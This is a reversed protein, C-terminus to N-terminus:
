LFPNDQRTESAAFTRQEEKPQEAAEMARRREEMKQTILGWNELLAKAKDEGVNAVFRTGKDVWEYERAIILLDDDHVGAERLRRMVEDTAPTKSGKRPEPFEQQKPPPKPKAAAPQQQKQPPPPPHEEEGPSPLADFVPRQIPLAAEFRQEELADSDADLADRYEPSLELWKTLRRFVTKKAMEDFDTVWPGDNAARSRKRIGSIEDLTMVEAQETADKFRVLAYYAYAAGRPKKFDIRHRVIEGRDFVFEDAECIKDAHINAVRGSRIALAVLGKYDVILTCETVNRRNNRFPILHALRGDPELGLQSLTLLCDFFSAQECEALRPTKTLATLAVRVFREPRLHIPLAAAVASKFQASAVLSRLKGSADLENKTKEQPSM